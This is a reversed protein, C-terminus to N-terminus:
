EVRRHAIIRPQHVLKLLSQVVNVFSPAEM